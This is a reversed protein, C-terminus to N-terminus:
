GDAVVVSKKDLSKLVANGAEISEVVRISSYGMAMDLGERRGNTIKGTVVDRLRVRKEGCALIESIGGMWCRAVFLGKRPDLPKAM